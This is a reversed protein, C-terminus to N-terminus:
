RIADPFIIPALRCTPLLGFGCSSAGEGFIFALAARRGAAALFGRAPREHADEVSGRVADEGLIGVGWLDASALVDQTGDSRRRFAQIFRERRLRRRWSVRQAM